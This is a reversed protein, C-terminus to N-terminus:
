KELIADLHEVQKGNVLFTYKKDEYLEYHGLFLTLDYKNYHKIIYEIANAGCDTIDIIKEKAMDLKILYYICLVVQSGTSLFSLKLPVGNFKSIFMTQNEEMECGEVEKIVREIEKSDGSKYLLASVDDFLMWPYEIYNLHKYENKISQKNRLTIINIM